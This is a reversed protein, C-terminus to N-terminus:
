RATPVVPLIGDTINMDFGTPFDMSPAYVDVLERHQALRGPSLLVDRVPDESPAVRELEDITLIDRLARERLGPGRRNCFAGGRVM